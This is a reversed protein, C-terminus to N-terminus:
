DDSTVIEGESNSVNDSIDSNETSDGGAELGAYPTLAIRAYDDTDISKCFHIAYKLKQRLVEKSSYRPMKLLFFCTYSEPLFDDPPNYKDLVQLVFDRGRFDAITRPLRTRGWVFRLFLSREANSFEEMVEWFWQMLPSNPDVSKYTAVSKLLNLPIDPSGCVMTELEYGTFLSLLPIPIVRAMGERVWQVQDDFEHLRYALALQVYENRNEHLIRTYKTSLPFEHGSASTTSFPMDASRLAEEDMDKICMLGPVYDKDIENLDTVSLKMGALQKWAPEALNLNLPSGTRVAIGLLMGFFRFMNQHLSSRLSSNLLFCDRNSGSEDRGNPTQILIHVCGNQLEDCMEAISESYGGGCDDVSEGIFKVKWVRHPLMLFDPGFLAMRSCIQGFVSKIGDPGALGGKSKSRKVQIRNIEIVPGHQRDRIMTAQVVKRFAAEKTASVLLGRLVDPLGIRHSSDVESQDFDFMPICPCFIESFHHLLILRNRLVIPSFVQLHNYEMPIEQPLHGANVPKNTSWALTHASGCAVRNVKKGQLSAILRPKQIANTTGDGLQGEDNDGWTFVEGTDTCCVCHLSGCAISTVKKGQLATVRRPRRVHDDSGHGLRHYDGKGWTYVAGSKTLAVSFQSGCDVKIVGMGQLADIRMPVKCGDSGGRGLKGYDGDGWSWVSDDDTLCMTQADGSGCAVNVVHFDKLAEVQKPRTQDESDGHGLRGYRGKGWTFLEGKSTICASHAGGAAVDIVDKGRLCEIVRPRDCPSRNGHGLKGDEGEGWSFVEGESSLALCHKGGSNVSVKKFFVHQVSELLSPTPVSETGGVGLRGGAGYGTAYVKGDGTVAFLTQEGGILQVPRLAALQECPQPLKVKAGEVGGLQGRHNHGWVWIQGSGGWSLIWDDPQRNLWHLLQEDQDRSFLSQNEYDRDLRECDLSIEQVKKNVEECFAIPLMGRNELASAVRSALCYRRFWVWKHVDVSHLISDLGLDCALAVLVKFFPSYLLHKGSRVIPDEYEYQRHLMEPLSKVLSALCSNTSTEEVSSSTVLSATDVNGSMLMRLKKLAWMRQLAGLSSLQACAALAAALRAVINRDNASPLKFDLLCTVLAVSPRSLVTRDSLMDLPALSAMIPFVTFRWGWGNVSGDSTFKWHLEDGTLRLEQSWDSWERGSRVSISRGMGDMITLPDHRRETSCQRDFEVRLGEAGPIRVSGTTCMDDTYPHPSEQVVPVALNHVTETDQAVDELETVCLELLMEAVQYSMKGLAILLQALTDKAKTGARNAVALKLLDVIARADDVTLKRTFDDLTMSVNDCEFSPDKQQGEIERGSFGSTIQETSTFTQSVFSATPSAKALLHMNPLPGLVGEQESSQSMAAPVAAASVADASLESNVPVSSRPTPLPSMSSPSDATLHDNSNDSSTLLDHQCSLSEVIADRSYLIQLAQLIHFLAQRKSLNSEMSLIIKSLSPRQSKVPLGAGSSLPGSEEVASDLLGVASSGLPDRGTFFLVPEHATSPVVDTTSWAISHSSGCSVKTVKYGELGHVLAPKRNVTTTSNGQQGHDNDGWAYVQGSDTVALCHLAGVAVHVIKKGKLGEVLQPKRVHADTGHGLRFYDGKGWTWVQGVKTLALSFQAGCEIQCVGLGTLRDIAHPVNCGESGGRGLKGFDGDGWSYVIGEDTLALTQADRSGLAVQVVRQGALAKVQKPRLQAANDGHGLRGYEGLGWTYLDGNSVIAASHSSGCSIDRVRKSRLAEILRPKDCSIRSFHGLKGDDGEGWSFVKGDVTLAMAHRGGSHVAVKKIVYQGLSALHRPVQVNGSIIGLGLRGNTAEGCAFLKGDQTVCFLSKSGGVIQVCKLSSLMENLQPIKIKSGKPGGLQDKDNLGWVFVHTQIDKSGAQKSRRYSFKSNSAREAFSEDENDSALYSVNLPLDDDTKMQGRMLLGHVKCDIGISKCQRIAIEIFRYFETVDELLIVSTETPGINITKMEKLTHVNEGGSMVVVSPMYSSDSPEVRMVLRNVIVDEHMELRIWHKGQTGCSQWFGGKDGRGEIMQHAQNERSSVSLHKVCRRWDTIYSSNDFSIMDFGCDKARTKSPSGAFTATTDGPFTLRNFDHKHSKKSKFCSACLNFDICKRCQFLQGQIPSRLCGNCVINDHSVLEMESILGTWQSQQPFSVTVDKGNSNISTVTGISQHTISGWKYKPTVVSSKVRVLDGVKITRSSGEAHMSSASSASCSLLEVHIYRVWYTGGKNHWDAQVNLDHLGDRDLKVVMGVDGERVEEYTQCCRVKMGLGINDRVYVAYDDSSMFDAKTKFSSPSCSAGGPVALNLLRDDNVVSFDDDVDGLVSELDSLLDVDSLPESDSLDDDVVQLEHHDLLWAVVAEATPPESSGGLWGGLEKLAYEVKRRPFGMENLQTVILSPPAEEDAKATRKSKAVNSLQSASLQHRHAPPVFASRPQYSAESLDGHEPLSTPLAPVPPLPPPSVPLVPPRGAVSILHQILSLATVELEHRSFIAKVPSPQTAAQMLRQMLMPQSTYTSNDDLAMGDDALVDAGRVLLESAQSGPALQLLIQRLNDQSTFIVRAAKLLLFRIQHKELASVDKADALRELNRASKFSSSISMICDSIGSVGSGALHILTTWLSLLPESLTQKSVEYPEMSVLELDSLQCSKTELQDFFQVTVSGSTKIATVTGLGLEESKVLGGLRIRGDIGGIMALISVVHVKDVLTTEMNCMSGGLADDGTQVRETIIDTISPLHAIMYEDIIQSWEDLAHLTRLLCCLEEAVTSTYSASLMVPARRRRNPWSLEAPPCLTPDFPCIILTKGLILFLREILDKMLAYDQSFPLVSRLLRLALVKQSLSLEEPFTSQTVIKLLLEIWLPSSLFSSIVPSVAIARIFGLHAWFQFQDKALRVTCSAMNLNHPSCGFDVLNRLLSTLTSLADRDTHEGHVVCGLSIAQLLNMVSQKLLNGRQMLPCASLVSEDPSKPTTVSAQMNNDDNSGPALSTSPPEALRLDYKNEKGMRYSNTSGTDWQVRIWGDEGLEGIVTGVSPEPGDQDGWKWDPGRVVRTGLRLLAAVEAGTLPVSQRKNKQHPEEFIAHLGVRSNNGTVTESLANSISSCSDLLRLMTQTLALLGSRIVLSGSYSEHETTLMGVLMLLLRSTPSCIVNLPEAKGGLLRVSGLLNASEQQKEAELLCSRMRSVVWKNLEGLVLQLLVRDCPPVLHVDSLCEPIMTSNGFLNVIGQWGSLLAYQVSGILSEKHVLSLMNQFGNLRIEARDVQNHLSKRLIEIDIPGDHLLFEVISMMLAADTQNALLHSSINPPPALDALVKRKSKPSPVVLASQKKNRDAADASTKGQSGVVTAAKSDKVQVATACSETVDLPTGLSVSASSAVTRKLCERSTAKLKRNEEIVRNIADKWRSVAKLLNSKKSSHIQTQVAPRLENLMFHCREIVPACVEKYSRGSDQHIKILTRRAQYVNRCVDAIARPLGLKGPSSQSSDGGVLGLAVEILNHHKLLISMTLRAVEEVPHDLPFGIPSTLNHSQCYCDVLDNFAKVNRDQLRCEILAQLFMQSSDSLSTGEVEEKLQRYRDTAKPLQQQCSQPHVPQKSEMVPSTVPTTTCSSPTRSEGKEEEFPNQPQLIQLGGSFFPLNLWRLCELEDVSLCTSCAQGRFMLGLLVALHRETDMLPSSMLGRGTAPLMASETELYNGIFFNQMMVTLEVSRYIDEYASTANEASYKELENALFVPAQMKLDHIDYVRGQIVVWLGGDKNHNELDSKRVCPFDDFYRQSISMLPPTPKKEFDIDSLDSISPWALEEAEDQHLGPAFSNVKDLHELLGTLLSVVDAAYLVMPAHFQLLTLCVVLEPLLVGSVDTSIVHTLHQFLRSGIGPNSASEEALVASAHNLFEGAHTLILILYKRLLYSAGLLEPEPNSILGKACHLSYLKSFLLRQFRLLLVLSTSSSSSLTSDNGVLSAKMELNIQSMKMVSEKGRLDQLKQMSQSSANRLLQQILQLLPIGSAREDVDDSDDVDRDAGSGHDDHHNSQKSQTMVDALSEHSKACSNADTEYNDADEEITKGSKFVAQTETRFANELSLELGGDAMLSSVLLETMFRQGRSLVLASQNGPAMVPLLASLTRAREEATPLLISWGTCLVSQALLQISSLVGSNSALSVVKQKLNMVLPSGPLLGTESLSEARQAMAAYLQLSLLRLAAVAICEQDQTPPWDNRGDVADFVEFLLLDLQEFTAHCVDVVFPIKSNLVFHSGSTWVFSQAPGCTAGVINKTELSTVLAPETRSGQSLDGLQGLDNKGWSYVDGGDTVALCHMPGITVDLVKKDSLSEVYHGPQSFLDDTPGSGLRCRDKRAWTYLRGEKTIAALMGNGSHIKMVEHGHLREVLKPTRDIIDSSRLYTSDAWMYLHGSNTLVLNPGDSNGFTADVITVGAFATVLTPVTYDDTLGASHVSRGWSYMEGSSTIVMSRSSSCHIQVVNKGVLAMVQTPIEATSSDGHGLQGLEGCGWSYVAGEATLALFHRAEPHTAIKVIRRENFGEVLQSVQANISYSMKYVKGSTKTLILLCNESAAMQEVDEVEGLPLISTPGVINIGGEGCSLDGWGFVDQMLSVKLKTSNPISYSSALRDLHALIIVASERLDVCFECDEPLVLYQLFCETSSINSADDMKLPESLKRSTSISEFRQLLPVLPALTLSSSLRNDCDNRNSSWLNLLLLVAGLISSLTGRQVALELLLALAVQQDQAPVRNSRAMVGNNIDGEVVAQLFKSSREVVELWVGSASLEDFLTAEPLSRLVQLSELLLESCLDSDEGSRWARRLFAFAFSLVARSGVRALGATTRETPKASSKQKSLNVQLNQKKRAPPKSDLRQHRSLSIFYRELIVLQQQLRNSSLTVAGSGSVLGQQESIIAQLCDKLQHIDPQQSWTWSDILRKSPHTSSSSVGTNNLSKGNTQQNKQDEKDLQQCASCNCGNTPGCHGDCCSCELVQMGCYYRGNEGKRSVAGASNVMESKDDCTILEGDKVLENWLQNLNDRRFITQLELKIWKSDLHPQTCLRINSAMTRTLPLVSDLDIM